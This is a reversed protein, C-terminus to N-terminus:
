GSVAEQVPGVASRDTPHSSVTTVLASTRQARRTLLVSPQTSSYVHRSGRATRAPASPRQHSTVSSAQAALVSRLQGDPCVRQDAVEHMDAPRRALPLSVFCSNMPVAHATCRKPTQPRDSYRPPSSIPRHATACSAFGSPSIFQAYRMAFNVISSSQSVDKCVPRSRAIWGRRSKDPLDHVLYM